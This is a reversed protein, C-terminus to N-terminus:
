ALPDDREGGRLLTCQQRDQQQVRILDDGHVTQDILQPFLVDGCRGLVRKLNVYLLQALRKRTWCLATRPGYHRTWGAVEDVHFRTFEICVVKTLEDHVPARCRIATFPPDGGIQESLAEGKPSALRERVEREFAEGLILDALQEPEPHERDFLPQRRVDFEAAM